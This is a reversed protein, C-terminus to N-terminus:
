LRALFQLLAIMLVMLILILGIMEIDLMAEGEKYVVMM